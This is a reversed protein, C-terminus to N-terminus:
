RGHAFVHDILAINEYPGTSVELDTGSVKKVHEALKMIELALEAYAEACRCVDSELFENHLRLQKTEKMQESLELSLLDIKKRQEKLHSWPWIKM